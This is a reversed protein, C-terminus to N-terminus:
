ARRRSRACTSTAVATAAPSTTTPRRARTTARPISRSRCTTTVWTRSGRSSTAAATAGPAARPTASACTVRRGALHLDEAIQAGSQGTGVVLVCGDPLAAPNRYANSHLRVVDPALAAEVAPPAWPTHYGGVALVVQDASVTGATTRLEFDGDAGRALRTVAVGELLPAEFTRLFGALYELIEDKVMFGEPEDGAYPHGPLRCQFNPTVLTFADWREEHWADFARSRELVVHEVGLQTLNWSMSLGAQGGGVIAVAVHAPLAHM